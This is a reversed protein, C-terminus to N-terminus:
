MCVSFVSVFPIRFFSSLLIKKIYSHVLRCNCVCPFYLCDLSISFWFLTLTFAHSLKSNLEHKTAITFIYAQSSLTHCYIGLSFYMSTWHISPSQQPNKGLPSGGKSSTWSGSDEQVKKGGLAHTVFYLTIILRDSPGGWGVQQIRHGLNLLWHTFTPQWEDLRPSSFNGTTRWTYVRITLIGTHIYKVETCYINVSVQILCWTCLGTLAVEGKTTLRIANM